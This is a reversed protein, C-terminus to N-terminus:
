KKKDLKDQAERCKRCLGNSGNYIIYDDNCKTCPYFMREHKINVKKRAM